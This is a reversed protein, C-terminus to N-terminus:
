LELSKAQDWLHAKNAAAMGDKENGKPLPGIARWAWKDREVSAETHRRHREIV